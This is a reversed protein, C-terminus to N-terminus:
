NKHQVCNDLMERNIKFDLGKRDWGIKKGREQGTKSSSISGFNNYRDTGKRDELDKILSSM